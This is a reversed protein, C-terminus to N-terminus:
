TDNYRLYLNTCLFKGEWKTKCSILFTFYSATFTEGLPENVHAIPHLARVSLTQMGEVQRLNEFMLNPILNDGSGLITGVVWNYTGLVEWFEPTFFGFADM